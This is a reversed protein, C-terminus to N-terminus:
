SLRILSISDNRERVALFSGGEAEVPCGIIQHGIVSSRHGNVTSRNSYSASLIKELGMSGYEWVGM